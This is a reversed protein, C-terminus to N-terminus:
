IQFFLPELILRSAQWLQLEEGDHFLRCEARENLKPTLTIRDEIDDATVVLAGPIKAVEVRKRPGAGSWTGAEVVMGRPSPEITVAPIENPNARLRNWTDVDAALQEELQKCMKRVTCDTRHEVWNIATPALLERIRRGLEQDQENQDM